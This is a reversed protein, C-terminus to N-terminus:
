PLGKAPCTGAADAFSAASPELKAKVIGLPRFPPTIQVGPQVLRLEYCGVYVQRGRDTEAEIAAPVSYFTSGAAGEGTARGLKLRVHRTDAYGAAFAEFTPRDPEDRFYSWARLYERREVANYLSEIVTEASSRDDRYDPPATEQAGAPATIAVAIVAARVALALSRM